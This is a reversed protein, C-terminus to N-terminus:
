RNRRGTRTAANSQRGVTQLWNAKAAESRGQVDSLDLQVGKAAAFRAAMTEGIGVLADFATDPLLFYSALQTGDAPFMPPIPVYRLDLNNITQWDQSQGILFLETGLVYGSPWRPPENRNDYHILTFRKEYPGSNQPVTAAVAPNVGNLVCVAGLIKDFPPLPIGTNFQAVLPTSLDLYATGSADLKVLYSVSKQYAPLGTVVGHRDDVVETVSVIQIVSTGDPIVAFAQSLTWVTATNSAIRRLSEPGAGLGEVIWVYRNADGNVTRAAGTKTLTSATASTAVFPGYAVVANDLDYSPALGAPGDVLDLADDVPQGGTTGAGATAFLNASNFAFQITLSQALYTKNLRTAALALARQGRGLAEGLARDPCTDRTFAPHAVRVGGIVDGLTIAM